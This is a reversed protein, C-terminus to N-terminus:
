EMDETEWKRFKELLPDQVARVEADSATAVRRQMALIEQLRDEMMSM